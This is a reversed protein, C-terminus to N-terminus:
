LYKEITEIVEIRDVLNQIYDISDVEIVLTPSDQYREFWSEYLDHLRRIYRLPIDQEEPRGRLRIRKRVTRVSAKLYIMLDPPRLTRKISSYLKRYTEYEDKTMKRSRYLNEAFVEADEYITRDQVVTGPHDSLDQHIQFKHALFFMQSHFAWRKMDGYFLPLFPNEANPEHFPTLAFRYQLFDVLTSKGAGINGAVAIYKRPGAM